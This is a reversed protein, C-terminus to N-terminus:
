YHIFGKLRAHAKDKSSRSAIEGWAVSCWDKRLELEADWFIDTNLFPIM